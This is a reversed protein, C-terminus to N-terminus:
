LDSLSCVVLLSCNHIHLHLLLPVDAWIFLIHQSKHLSIIIIIHYHHSIIYVVLYNPVIEGNQGMVETTPRPRVVHCKESSTLM